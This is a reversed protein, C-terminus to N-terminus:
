ELLWILNTLHNPSIKIDGFEDTNIKDIVIDLEEEVLSKHEAIFDERNRDPINLDDGEGYREFLFKRNEQYVELITNLEKQVKSVKIATNIPLIQATLAEIAEKSELIEKINM